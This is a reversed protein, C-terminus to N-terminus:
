ELCIKNLKQKRIEKVDLIFRTHDYYFNSGLVNVLGDDESNVIYTKGIVLFNKYNDDRIPFLSPIAICKVIDGVKFM